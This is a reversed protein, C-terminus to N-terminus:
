EYISEDMTWDAIFQEAAERREQATTGNFDWDM